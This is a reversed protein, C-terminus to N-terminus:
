QDDGLLWWCGGCAVTVALYGLAPTVAWGAAVLACAAILLLLDILKLM